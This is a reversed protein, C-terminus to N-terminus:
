FPQFDRDFRELYTREKQMRQKDAILTAVHYAEVHLERIDPALKIARDYDSLAQSYQKLSTYAQARMHYYDIAQTPKATKNSPLASLVYSTDTIVLDWQRTRQAARIRDTRYFVSTPDFKLAATIHQIAADFHSQAMLARAIIQEAGPMIQGDLKESKKACEIANDYQRLPLLIDAQLLWPSSRKPELRCATQIATLADSDEQAQHLIKAKVCLYPAQNPHLMIARNIDQLAQDGLRDANINFEAAARFYLAEDDNPNAAIIKTCSGIVSEFKRANMMASLEPHKQFHAVQATASGACILIWGLGLAIVVENISKM